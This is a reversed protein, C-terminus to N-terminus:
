RRDRRIKGALRLDEKEVLMRGAHLAIEQADQAVAVLHQEACTQLCETAEATFALDEKFDRAMARLYRGFRDLPMAFGSTQQATRVEALKRRHAHLVKEDAWVGADAKAEAESLLRFGESRMLVKDSDSLAAEALKRREIVTERCMADLVPMPTIDIFESEGDYRYEYGADSERRCCMHFGTRPDIFVALPLGQANAADRARSAMRQVFSENDEGEGEDDREFAVLNDHIHPMVGADRLVCTDKFLENLEEDNLLARSLHLCGICSSKADKCENGSLELLEATMYEMVAALYTTAKETLPYDRTLRSAVLAVYEPGLQLGAQSAMSIYGPGRNRGAFRLKNVAKTGEAKAHKALDSPLLLHMANQVDSKTICAVPTALKVAPSSMDDDHELYIRVSHKGKFDPEAVDNDGVRVELYGFARNDVEDGLENKEVEPDSSVVHQRGRGEISITLIQDMLYTSIDNLVALARPDVSTGKGHVQALVASIMSSWIGRVGCAGGFGLLTKGGPRANLVDQTTVISSRRGNAVTIVDRVAHSMYSDLSDRMVEYSSLSAWPVGARRFLQDVDKNQPAYMQHCVPLTRVRRKDASMGGGKGRGCGSDWEPAHVCYPLGVGETDNDLQLNEAAQYLALSHARTQELRPDDRCSDTLVQPDLITASLAEELIPCPTDVNKAWAPPAPLPLTSAFLPRRLALHSSRFATLSRLNAEADNHWETPKSDGSVFVFPISSRCLEGSDDTTPATLSCPMDFYVELFARAAEIDISVVGPGPHVGQQGVASEAVPTVRCPIDPSRHLGTLLKIFQLQSGGRGDGEVGEESKQGFWNPWKFVKPTKGGSDPVIYRSATYDLYFEDLGELVALGGLKAQEDGADLPSITNNSLIGKYMLHERYDDDTWDVFEDKSTLGSIAQFLEKEADTYRPAVVSTGDVVLVEDEDQCHDAM